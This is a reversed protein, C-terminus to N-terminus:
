KMFSLLFVPELIAQFYRVRSFVVRKAHSILPNERVIFLYVYVCPYSTRTNILITNIGVEFCIQRNLKILGVCITKKLFLDM